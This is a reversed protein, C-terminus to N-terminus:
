HIKFRKGSRFVQGSNQMQGRLAQMVNRKITQLSAQQSHHQPHRHRLKDVGPFM